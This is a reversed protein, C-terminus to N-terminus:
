SGAPGDVNFTSEGQGSRFVLIEAVDDTPNSERHVTGKPVFVYDGPGAEVTDGGGPGFEMRLAGSLVYIVSEYDGHHHWGSTMRAATTASGAWMGGTAFAQLREMGPTPPGPTRDGSRSILVPDM